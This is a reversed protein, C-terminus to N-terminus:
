FGSSESQGRDLGSVPPFHPQTHAPAGVREIYGLATKEAIVRGNLTYVVPGGSTTIVLSEGLAGYREDGLQYTYIMPGGSTVYGEWFKVTSGGTRFGLSVLLNTGTTSLTFGTVVFSRETAGAQIVTDAAAGPVSGVFAFRFGQNILDELRRTKISQILSM